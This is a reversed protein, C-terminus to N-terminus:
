GATSAPAPTPVYTLRVRSAAPSLPMRVSRSGSASPPFVNILRPTIAVATKKPRRSRLCFSSIRRSTACFNPSSGASSGGATPSASISVQDRQNLCDAVSSHPQAISEM